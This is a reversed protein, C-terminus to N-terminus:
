ANGAPLLQRVEALQSPPLLQLVGTRGFLSSSGGGGKGGRVDIRTSDVFRVKQSLPPKASHAAAGAFAAARQDCAASTASLARALNLQVSPLSRASNQLMCRCVELLSPGAPALSSLTIMFVSHDRPELFPALCDNSLRQWHLAPFEELCVPPTVASRTTDLPDCMIFFSVLGAYPRYVYMIQMNIQYHSAHVPPLAAQVM